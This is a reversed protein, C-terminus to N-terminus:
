IITFLYYCYVIALHSFLFSFTLLYHPPFFFCLYSSSIFFLFCSSSFFMFFSVLFILPFTFCFFFYHLLLPFFTFHWFCSLINILLYHYLSFHIFFPSLFFSDFRLLFLALLVLNFYHFHLAKPLSRHELEQM